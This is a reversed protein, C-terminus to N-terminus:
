RKERLSMIMIPVFVAYGGLNQLSFLKILYIFFIVGVCLIFCRMEDNERNRKYVFYFFYVIGLILLITGVLGYRWICQVYGIDSVNYYMSDPIAGDGFIIDNPFNLHKLYFTLFIGSYEQGVLLNYVSEMGETVWSLTSEPLISVAYSGIILMLTAVVSYGVLKEVNWRAYYLSVLIVSIVELILGTRTNLLAIFIMCFFCIFYKIKRRSVAKIFAITSILSVIYGISDFLNGAFGYCRKDNGLVEFISKQVAGETNANIIQLFIDRIGPFLFALIACLFQLFGALMIYNSISEFKINMKCKLFRLVFCLAILKIGTSIPVYATRIFDSNEYAILSEPKEIIIFYLANLWTYIIFPIFSLIIKKVELPINIRGNYSIYIMLIVANLVDLITSINPVIPPSFIYIFLYLILFSGRLMMKVNYQNEFNLNSGSKMMSM